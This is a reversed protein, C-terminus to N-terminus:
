CWTLLLLGFPSLLDSFRLAAWFGYGMALSLAMVQGLDGIMGGLVEEDEEETVDTKL